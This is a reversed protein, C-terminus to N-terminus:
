ADHLLRAILEVGTADMALVGHEGLSSAAM